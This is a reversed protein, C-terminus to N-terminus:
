KNYYHYHNTIVTPRTAGNWLYAGVTMSFRMFKEGM